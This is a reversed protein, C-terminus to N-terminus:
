SPLSPQSPGGRPLRGDYMTQRELALGSAAPATTTFIGTSCFRRGPPTVIEDHVPEVELMSYISVTVTGERKHLPEPGCGRGTPTASLDSAYWMFDIKRAWTRTYIGGNPSAPPAAAGHRGLCRFSAYEDLVRLELRRLRQPEERDRLRFSRQVSTCNVRGVRRARRAGRMETGPM